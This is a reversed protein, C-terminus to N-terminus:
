SNAGARDLPTGFAVTQGPLRTHPYIACAHVIAALVASVVTVLELPVAPGGFAFRAM